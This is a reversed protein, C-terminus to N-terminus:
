EDVKVFTSESGKAGFDELVMESRSMSKITIDEARSITDKKLDMKLRSGSKEYTGSWGDSTTVTGDGSFQLTYATPPPPEDSGAPKARWQGVLSAPWAVWVIAVLVLVGIVSLAAAYVWTPTTDHEMLTAPHPPKDSPMEIGCQPCFDEGPKVTAGCTPCTRTTPTAPAKASVSSAAPRAPASSKAPTKASGASRTAADRSPTARSSPREAADELPVYPKPADTEDHAALRYDDDEEPPRPSAAM